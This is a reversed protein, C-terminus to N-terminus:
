GCDDGMKQYTMELQNFLVTLASRCKLIPNLHERQALTRLCETLQLWPERQLRVGERGMSSIKARARCLRWWSWPESCPHPAAQAAKSHSQPVAKVGQWWLTTVQPEPSSQVAWKRGGCCSRAQGAAEPFSISLAKVRHGPSKEKNGTLSSGVSAAWSKKDLLTRKNWNKLNKTQLQEPIGYNNNVAFSICAKSPLFIM